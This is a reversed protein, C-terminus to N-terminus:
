RAWHGPLENACPSRPHSTLAAALQPVSGAARPGLRGLLTAAWYAADGGDGGVIQALDPADAEHPAGMAELAAVAWERVTEDEDAAAWVLVGSGPNWQVQDPTQALREATQRRLELSGAKLAEIWDAKGSM